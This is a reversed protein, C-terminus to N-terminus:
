IRAVLMMPTPASEPAPLLMALGAVPVLAWLAYVISAGLRAMLPRRLALVLLAAASTALTTECLVRLLEANM